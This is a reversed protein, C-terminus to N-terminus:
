TQGPMSPPPQQGPGYLLHNLVGEPNGEPALTASTDIGPPRPKPDGTINIAMDLGRLDPHFMTSQLQAQINMRIAPRLFDRRALDAPGYRSLWEDTAHEALLTLAAQCDEPLLDARAGDVVFQYLQVSTEADAVRAQAEAEADEPLRARAQDVFMQTGAARREAAAVAAQAARLAEELGARDQRGRRAAADLAAQADSASQRARELKEQEARLMNEWHALHEPLTRARPDGLPRPAPPPINACVRQLHAQADALRREARALDEATGPTRPGTGGIVFGGDAAAM